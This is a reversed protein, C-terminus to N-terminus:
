CQAAGRLTSYSFFEISSILRQVAQNDRVDEVKLESVIREYNEKAKELQKIISFTTKDNM